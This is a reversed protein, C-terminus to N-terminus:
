YSCLKKCYGWMYGNSQCDSMCTWDTNYSIGLQSLTLITLLILTKM